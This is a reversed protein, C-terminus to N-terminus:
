RNIHFREFAAKVETLLGSSNNLWYENDLLSKVIRLDKAASDLDGTKEYSMARWFYVFPFDPQLPVGESLATIAEEFQGNDYYAWGLHYQTPMTPSDSERDLRNAELAAKLSEPYKKARKLYLALNRYDDKSPKGIEMGATQDAVAELYNHLGYYNGWARVLLATKRKRCPLNQIDLCTTAHEISTIYNGSRGEDYAISCASYDDASVISNFGLFLATVLIIKRNSYIDM